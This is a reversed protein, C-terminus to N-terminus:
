QSSNFRRDHGVCMGVFEANSVVLCRALWDCTHRGVRGGACATHRFSSSTLDLRASLSGVVTPAPM